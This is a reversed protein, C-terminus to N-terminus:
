RDLRDLVKLVTDSSVDAPLGDVGGLSSLLLLAQQALPSPVVQRAVDLAQLPLPANFLDVLSRGIAGRTAQDLEALDSNGTLLARPDSLEALRISFTTEVLPLKLEITELARAPPSATLAAALALVLGSLSRSTRAM